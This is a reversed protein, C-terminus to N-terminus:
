YTFHFFRTVLFTSFIFCFSLSHRASANAVPRDVAEEGTM